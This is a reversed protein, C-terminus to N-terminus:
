QPILVYFSTLTNIRVTFNSYNKSFRSKLIMITSEQDVKIFLLEM